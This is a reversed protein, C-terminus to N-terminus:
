DRAAAIAGPFTAVGILSVRGHHDLFPLDCVLAWEIRAM